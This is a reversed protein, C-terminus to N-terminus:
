FPITMYEISITPYILWSSTLENCLWFLVVKHGVSHLDSHYCDQNIPGFGYLGFIYNSKTNLGLTGSLLCICWIAEMHNRFNGFSHLEPNKGFFMRWNIMCMSFTYDITSQRVYIKRIHILAIFRLGKFTEM